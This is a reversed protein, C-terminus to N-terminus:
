PNIAFHFHVWAIKEEGMATFGGLKNQLAYTKNVPHGFISLKQNHTAAEGTLIHQFFVSDGTYM